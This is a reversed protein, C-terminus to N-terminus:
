RHSWHYERHDDHVYVRREAPVGADVYCASLIGVVVVLAAVKLFSSGISNM